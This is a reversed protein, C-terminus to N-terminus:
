PFIEEPGLIAEGAATIYISSDMSSPKALEGFNLKQWPDLLSTPLKLEKSLYQELGPMMSGGGFILVQAIQRDKHESHETYYRMVKNVEKVLDDLVPAIAKIIDPQKDSFSLGYKNKLDKAKPTEVGITKSLLDTISEAGSNITSTVFVAKDIVAIDTSISGFDILISPKDSSADVKSFLRSAANITPELAVPELKLAELFVLYSDAIDKPIAVMLLEINEATRNFVEWDV